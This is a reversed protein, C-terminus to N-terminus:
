SNECLTLEGASHTTEDSRIAFRYRERDEGVLGAQVADRTRDIERIYQLRLSALRDKGSSFRHVMSDLYDFYVASNVHGLPDYDSARTSIDISFEASFDHVPKWTDLNDQMAAANETTYTEILENPIRSLKRRQMDFYLWISSASAIKEEGAYIEFDRYAKFGKCGRSWTVVEIAEQYDPYREVEMGIKNLIWVFGNAVMLRSGLGVKESHMVAVELLSRFLFGLKWQFHSDIEFYRIKRNLRVKM